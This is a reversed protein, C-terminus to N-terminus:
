LKRFQVLELPATIDVSLGMEIEILPFIDIQAFKMLLSASVNLTVILLLPEPSVVPCPV